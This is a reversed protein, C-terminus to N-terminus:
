FDLLLPLRHECAQNALNRFIKLGAHAEEVLSRGNPKRIQSGPAKLQQLQDSTRADLDDLQKKLTFISGIYSAKESALTPFGFVFPFDSPVWLQAELITRFRTKFESKTSRQYAPDDAWSEPPINPLPLDPHESHAAWVLLACYAVWGPRDTFYPQHDDEDWNVPGFGHPALADTMAACWTTVAEKIQEASPSPPAGGPRIVGYKTGQERAWRQGVTEWDRRYYRTMTGVYVDLAM